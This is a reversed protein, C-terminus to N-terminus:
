SSFQSNRDGVWFSHLHFTDIMLVLTLPSLPSSCHSYLAFPQFFVMRFFCIDVWQNSWFDLHYKLSHLRHFWFSTISTPFTSIALGSCPRGIFPGFPCYSTLINFFSRAVIRAISHWICDSNNLLCYIRKTLFSVSLVCLVLTELGGNIGIM